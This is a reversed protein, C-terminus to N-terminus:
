TRSFFELIVIVGTGVAISLGAYLCAMGGHGTQILDATELAFTSFTTFGGCIGVKLLLILRPSLPVNKITLGVICGIAICGVINILFTKVPFIVTEKVPVLGILYRLVSGIFGGIGVALCNLMIEEKRVGM